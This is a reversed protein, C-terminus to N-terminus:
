AAGLPKSMLIADIRGSPTAYYNKRRGTEQWGARAYLARAATNTEAVELFARQAGRKTAEDEFARLSSMGLGQKQHDPHIAITLLEAEDLVVRGLAFGLLNQTRSVGTASPSLPAAGRASEGPYKETSPFVCLTGSQTLLNEFDYANWPSPVNMARGHIRAMESPTM